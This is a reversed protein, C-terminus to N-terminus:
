FFMEVHKYVDQIGAVCQMLPPQKLLRLFPARADAREAKGVQKRRM